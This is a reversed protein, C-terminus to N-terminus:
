FNLQIHNTYLKNLSNHAYRIAGDFRWISYASESKIHTWNYWASAGTSSSMSVDRRFKRHLGTGSYLAEVEDKDFKAQANKGDLELTQDNLDEIRDSVPLNEDIREISM